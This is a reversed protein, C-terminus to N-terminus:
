STKSDNYQYTLATKLAPSEEVKKKEQCVYLRDIDNRPHLAKHMTM